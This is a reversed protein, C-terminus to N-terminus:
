PHFSQYHQRRGGEIHLLSVGTRAAHFTSEIHSRAAGSWQRATGEPVAGKKRTQSRNENEQGFDLLEQAM